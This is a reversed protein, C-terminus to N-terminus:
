AAAPPTKGMGSASTPLTARRGPVSPTLLILLLKPLAMKEGVLELLDLLLKALQVCTPLRWILWPVDFVCEELVNTGEDAVGVAHGFQFATVGRAIVNAIAVDFDLDGFGNIREDGGHTFAPGGPVVPVVIEDINQTLAAAPGIGHRFFGEGHGFFGCSQAKPLSGERQVSTCSPGRLASVVAHARKTLFEVRGLSGFIPFGHFGRTCFKGRAPRGNLLAAPRLRSVFVGGAAFQKDSVANLLQDIGAAHEQFHRREGGVPHVVGRYRTRPHHTADTVDRPTGAHNHGVIGSHFAARIKRQRDLLM